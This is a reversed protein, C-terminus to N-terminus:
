RTPDLPALWGALDLVALVAIVVLPALYWRWPFGDSTEM